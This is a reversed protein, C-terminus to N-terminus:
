SQSEIFNSQVLENEIYAEAKKINSFRLEGVWYYNPSKRINHGKYEAYNESKGFEAIVRKNTSILGKEAMLSQATSSFGLLYCGVLLAGFVFYFIPSGTIVSVLLTTASLFGYYFAGFKLRSYHGVQYGSIVFFAASTGIAIRVAVALRPQSILDLVDILPIAAMFYVYFHILKRM